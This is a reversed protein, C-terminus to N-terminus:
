EKVDYMPERRDNVIKIPKDDKNNLFDSDVEIINSGSSLPSFTRDINISVFKDDEDNVLDYVTNKYFFIDYPKDSFLIPNTCLPLILQFQWIKYM